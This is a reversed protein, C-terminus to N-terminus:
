KGTVTWNTGNSTEEAFHGPSGGGEVAGWVGGANSDSISAKLGPYTAPPLNAYTTNRFYSAVGAGYFAGIRSWENGNLLTPQLNPDMATMVFTGISGGSQVDWAYSLAAGSTGAANVVNCGNCELRKITAGTKVTGWYATAVCCSGRSITTNTLVLNGITSGTGGWSIFNTSYNGPYWTCNSCALEGVNDEIQFFQNGATLFTANDVKVSSVEDAVAPGVNGLNLVAGGFISGTINSLTVNGLTYNGSGITNYTRFAADNLAVFQVNTVSGGGCNGGYGEPLNVAIGDDGTDLYSDSV